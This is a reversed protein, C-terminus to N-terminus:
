RQHERREEREHRWQWYARREAARQREYRVYARRREALYQRYSQQERLTWVHYDHRYPDYVRRRRATTTQGGAAAEAFCPAAIFVALVAAALAKFRV